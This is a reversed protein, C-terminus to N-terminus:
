FEPRKDSAEPKRYYSNLTLFTTQLCSTWCSTKAPQVIGDSWYELVGASWATRVMIKM